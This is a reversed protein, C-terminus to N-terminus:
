HPADHAQRALEDLPLGPVGGSLLVLTGAQEGLLVSRGDCEILLLTSRPSVRLREVLRLRRGAQLPLSRQVRRRMVYLAGLGAAIALVFAAAIRGAEPEVPADRRFPIAAAPADAGSAASATPTVAAAPAAGAALLVVSLLAALAAPARGGARTRGHVQM